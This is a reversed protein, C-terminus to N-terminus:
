AASRCRLALYRHARPAAAPLLRLPERLEAVVHCNVTAAGVTLERQKFAARGREAAEVMIDPRGRRWLITLTVACIRWHTGTRRVRNTYYGGVTFWSTPDDADLIHEAQMYMTMVADDGDVTLRPNTM